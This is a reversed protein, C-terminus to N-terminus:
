CTSCPETPLDRELWGPGHLGGIMGESIDHVETFGARALLEAAYASRNGRACILAIPREPDDDVARLLDAIFAPRPEFTAPDQLSIGLAGQPLGTEAWEVPLRVDVITLAGDEARQKADMPSLVDGHALGPLVLLVLALVVSRM